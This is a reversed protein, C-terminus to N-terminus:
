GLLDKALKSYGQALGKASHADSGYHLPIKRKYAEMAISAPPYSDNCLPKIFGAGNYDLEYGKKSIADLIPFVYKEIPISSPFSKKFKEILTIHGVRKPKYTGLNCEISQLLTSFYADYLAPLGGFIEIMRAFEQESFDMCYYFEKNKLFHVSLISDDLLPGYEDLFEKVEKNYGEIFDIELGINIKISSSYYAKWKKLEQFYSPLRDFEMASDKDPAPDSFNIPLPAHETFSIEKYQLELAREIYKEISDTSGHPCYPTHVHKDIIM